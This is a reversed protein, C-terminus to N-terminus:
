GFTIAVFHDSPLAQVYSLLFYGMFMKIDFTCETLPYHETGAQTHLFEITASLDYFRLIRDHIGIDDFSVYGVGRNICNYGHDTILSYEAM